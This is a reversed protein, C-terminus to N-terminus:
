ELQTADDDPPSASDPLSYNDGQVYACVCKSFFNAGIELFFFNAGIELITTTVLCNTVSPFVGTFVEKLIFVRARPDQMATSLLLFGLGHM